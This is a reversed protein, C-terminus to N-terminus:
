ILFGLEQIHLLLYVLADKQHYDDAETHQIYFCYTDRFLKQVLYLKNQICYSQFTTMM